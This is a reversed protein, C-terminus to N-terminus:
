NLSHPSINPDATVRNDGGFLLLPWSGAGPVRLHARRSNERAISAPCGAVRHFLKGFGM